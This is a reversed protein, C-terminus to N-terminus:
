VSNAELSDCKFEFEVSVRLEREDMVISLLLYCSIPVGCM